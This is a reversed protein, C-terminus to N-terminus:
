DGTWGRALVPQGCAVSSPLFCLFCFPLPLKGNLMTIADALHLARILSFHGADASLLLKQKDIALGGVATLVRKKGKKGKERGGAM